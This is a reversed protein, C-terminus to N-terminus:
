HHRSWIERAHRLQERIGENKLQRYYSEHFEYTVARVGPAHTLAHDLNEWVADAVPGAHSDTYMGMFEDGGAIHLEIIISPDIRSVFECPDLGHNRANAYVNHIDLLLGCGTEQCLRNLFEPESMEQDPLDFFYVNNELLFAAPVMSQVLRVRSSVLELLEQDYPVPIALATNQDHGSVGIRSFSLHDSHWPAQFRNQWRAIQAVHEQDFLESSGISLDVSHLVIPVRSALKEVPETFADYELYQRPQSQRDVTWFSDPIIELFDILEPEDSLLETLMPNYLIGIGLRPLSSMM